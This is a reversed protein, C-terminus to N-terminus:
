TPPPSFEVVRELWAAGLPSHSAASIAHAEPSAAYLDIHVDPVPLWGAGREPWEVLWAHGPRALDRLGLADLELPERLRYLDVHVVVIDALEYCELLAFTPSRAPEILGRRRLFGRALTTKGAGLDGSLYVVAPGRTVPPMADALAAGAAEM